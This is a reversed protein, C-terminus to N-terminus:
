QYIQRLCQLTACKQFKSDHSSKIIHLKYIHVYIYIYLMYLEYCLM